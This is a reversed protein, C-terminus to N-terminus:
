DSKLGTKSAVIFNMYSLLSFNLLMRGWGSRDAADRCEVRFKPIHSRVEGVTEKQV